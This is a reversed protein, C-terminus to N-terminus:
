APAKALEHVNAHRAQDASWGAAFLAQTLQQSLEGVEFALQRREECASQYQCFGRHIQWRAQKLAELMPSNAIRGGDRILAAIPSSAIAAAAAADDILGFADPALGSWLQDNAGALLHQADNLRRAIEIDRQFLASLQAALQRAHAPVTRDNTGALARGPAHTSAAAASATSM